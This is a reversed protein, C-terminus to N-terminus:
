IRSPSCAPGQHTRSGSEEALNETRVCEGSNAPTGYERLLMSLFSMMEISETKVREDDDKMIWREIHPYAQPNPPRFHCSRHLQKRRELHFPDGLRAHMM